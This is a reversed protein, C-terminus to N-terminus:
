KSARLKSLAAWPLFLAGLPGLLVVGFGWLIGPHGASSAVRGTLFALWLSCAVLLFLAFLVAERGIFSSVIFMGFFAVWYCAWAYKLAQALSPTQAETVEPVELPDAYGLCHAVRV